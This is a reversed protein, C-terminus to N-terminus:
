LSAGQVLSGNQMTLIRSCKKALRDSHTVVLLSTEHKEVLDFMLNMIEDGTSEDLSGSPEDALILKPNIAISRAIAVRQQEGGSLQNPFHNERNSLGVEKLINFAKDKAEKDGKLELALAVNEWAKLHSLLHFQQFIMGIKTARLSTLGDESLTSYDINDFKLQGSDARELGCLLSLLTSKGSGSRGVIAVSEAKAVSFTIEKLVELRGKPTDFGKAVKNVEFIM